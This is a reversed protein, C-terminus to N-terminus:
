SFYAPKAERGAIAYAWGESDHIRGKRVEKPFQLFIIVDIM